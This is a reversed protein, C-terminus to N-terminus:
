FISIRQKNVLMSVLGHKTAVWKAKGNGILANGMWFFPDVVLRPSEAGQFNPDDVHIKPLM